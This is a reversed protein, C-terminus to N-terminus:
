QRPTKMHTLRRRPKKRNALRRRQAQETMPSRELPAPGHADLERSVPPQRHGKHSARSTSLERTLPREGEEDTEWNDTEEENADQNDNGESSGENLIDENAGGHNSEEDDDLGLHGIDIDISGDRERLEAAIHRVRSAWERTRSHRPGPVKVSGQYAEKAIELAAQYDGKLEWFYALWEMSKLIQPHERGMVRKRAELAQRCIEEAEDLKAQRELIKVLLMRMDSIVPDDISLVEESATLGRRCWTEAEEYRELSILNAAMNFVNDPTRKDAIGYQKETETVLLQYETQANKYDGHLCTLRALKTRIEIVVPHHHGHINEISLLAAPYFQEVEKNKSQETLSDCLELIIEANTKGDPRLQKGAIALAQRYCEEAEEFRQLTQLIFGLWRSAWVVDRHEAGRVEVLGDLARRAPGEADVYNGQDCLEQAQDRWAVITVPHGPGFEPGSQPRCEKPM